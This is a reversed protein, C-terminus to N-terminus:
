NLNRKALKELRRNYKMIIRTLQLIREARPNQFTEKVLEDTFYKIEHALSKAENKDKDLYANVYQNLEKLVEDPMLGPNDNGVQAANMAFEVVDKSFKGAYIMKGYKAFAQELIRRMGQATQPTLM